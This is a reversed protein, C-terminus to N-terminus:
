PAVCPNARPQAIQIIKISTTRIQGEQQYWKEGIIVKHLFSSASKPTATPHRMNVNRSTVCWISRQGQNPLSLQFVICRDHKSYKIQLGQGFHSSSLSMAHLTALCRDLDSRATITTGYLVEFHRRLIEAFSQTFIAIWPRWFTCSSLFGRGDMMCGNMWAEM